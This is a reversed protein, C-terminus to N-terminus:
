KKPGGRLAHARALEIIRQTLAYSNGLGTDRLFNLVRADRAIFKRALALDSQWTEPRNRKLLDLSSNQEAARDEPSLKEYRAVESSLLQADAPAGGMDVLVITGLERVNDAHAKVAEANLPDAGAGDAIDVFHKGAEDLQTALYPNHEATARADRVAQPTSEIFEPKASQQAGMPNPQTEQPTTSAGDAPKAADPKPTDTSVMGPSNSYEFTDSM